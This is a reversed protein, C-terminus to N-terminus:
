GVNLSGSPSPQSGSSQDTSVDVEDAIKSAKKARVVVRPNWAAMKSPDTGYKEYDNIVKIVRSKYTALSGASFRLKNKNFVANAIQELNKRFLEVSKQEEENLEQEYLKVAARLTQATSEPYKRSKVASNIFDHLASTGQDM